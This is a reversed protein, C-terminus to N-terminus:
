KNNIHRLIAEIILFDLHTDIEYAEEDSLEFCIPSECLRNNFNLYQSSKTIYISGNEIYTYDTSKIDQRRPRRKYNYLAEPSSINKWLFHDFRNVSLLSSKGYKKYYNFADDITTKKRVPSTPQLLVINEPIEDNKKNFFNLCHNIASETTANDGSIEMPRIFPVEAGYSQSLEAIESSDTSVVLRDICNAELAAKISWYILPMGGIKKLNKGPVGKSGGRAPIIALNKIKM